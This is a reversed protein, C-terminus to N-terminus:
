LSKGDSFYTMVIAGNASISWRRNLIFGTEWEFGMHATSDASFYEYEGEQNIDINKLQENLYQINYGNLRAHGTELTFDIGWELNTIVEAAAMVPTSWVDDAQIIQNDAPEKQAKGWNVFVHMSDGIEWVM